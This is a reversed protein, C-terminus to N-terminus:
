IWDLHTEHVEKNDDQAHQEQRRHYLSTRVLPAMFLLPRREAHQFEAAVHRHCILHLPQTLEIRAALAVARAVGDAARWAVPSESIGSHDCQM